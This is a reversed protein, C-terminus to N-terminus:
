FCEYINVFTCCYENVVDFYIYVKQLIRSHQLVELSVRFIFLDELVNHFNSVCVSFIQLHLERFCLFM